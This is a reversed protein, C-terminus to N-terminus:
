IEKVMTQNTVRFGMKKYLSIAVDNHGFVHLGISSLGQKRVEEELLQMIVKGFGKGRVTADLIIDYVFASKRTGSIKRAFWLTGVVDNSSDDVISFLFQDDSEIGKPLLREFSEQAVKMAEEETLGEGKMKEQAYNPLSKKLYVEFESVTMKRLKIM